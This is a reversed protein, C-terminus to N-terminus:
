ERTGGNPGTSRYTERKVRALAPAQPVPDSSQAAIIRAALEAVTPAEFIARLPLEVGLSAAIRSIVQTAMLSHGGLEFFNSHVGVRDVRLVTAWITALLEEVPTRPAVYDDEPGSAGADPAPLARRDLKGNPSIPLSELLVFGAPVMFDPLREKLFRRLESMTPAPDEPVLYAVLRKEGPADERAIVAAARVAPHEGLVAEVEGPEVRHGRLKVQNDVRGLFELSGDARWRVRDGTRYLRGGFEGGLAPGFPDPVFREATLGPRGLYGRAVGAGGLYLEGAVGVPVPELGPDLVYARTNAIPRGIPVSGNLEGAEVPHVTAFTTTETPGYGNSFRCHPLERLVREVQAVPLVDGGALLQRV